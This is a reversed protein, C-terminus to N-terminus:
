PHFLSQAAGLASQLLSFNWDTGDHYPIPSDHPTSPITIDLIRIGRRMGLDYGQTFGTGGNAVMTQFVAVEKNCNFRAGHTRTRQHMGSDPPQDIARVVGRCPSHMRDHLDQVVRLQVMFHFDTPSYQRPAARFDQL